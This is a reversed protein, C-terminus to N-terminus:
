LFLSLNSLENITSSINESGEDYYFFNCFFSLLKYINALINKM